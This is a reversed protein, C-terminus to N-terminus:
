SEGNEGELEECIEDIFTNSFLTTVISKNM